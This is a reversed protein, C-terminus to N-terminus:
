SCTRNTSGSCDHGGFAPAPCECTHFQLGGRPPCASWGCWGGDIKQLRDDIHNGTTPDIPNMIVTAVKEYYNSSTDHVKTIFGNRSFATFVVFAVIAFLLLYELSVQGRSSKIATIKMVIYIYCM